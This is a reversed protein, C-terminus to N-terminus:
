SWNGGRYNDWGRYSSGSRRGFDRAYDGQELPIFTDKEPTVSPDVSGDSSLPTNMVVVDPNVKVFQIPQGDKQDEFVEWMNTVTPLSDDWSHVQTLFLAHCMERHQDSESMQAFGPWHKTALGMAINSPM